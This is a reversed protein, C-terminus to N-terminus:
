GESSVSLEPAEVVVSWRDCRRAHFARGKEAGDHCVYQPGPRM